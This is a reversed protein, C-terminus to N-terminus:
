KGVLGGMSIRQPIQFSLILYCIIIDSYMVSWHTLLGQFFQVLLCYTHHGVMLDRRGKGKGQSVILQGILEWHSLTDPGRYRSIHISFDGRITGPVAVASDTHGIMARSTRVM